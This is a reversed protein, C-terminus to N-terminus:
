NVEKCTKIKEKKETKDKMLKFANENYAAKNLQITKKAEVIILEGTSLDRLQKAGNTINKLRM